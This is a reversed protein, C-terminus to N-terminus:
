KRIRKLNLINISIGILILFAFIYYPLQFNKYFGVIYTGYLRIPFLTISIILLLQSAIALVYTFRNYSIYQIGLTLIFVIFIVAFNYKFIYFGTYSPFTELDSGVIMSTYWNMNLLLLPLLTFIFNLKTRLTKM